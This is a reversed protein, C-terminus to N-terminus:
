FTQWLRVSTYNFCGTRATNDGWRKVNTSSHHSTLDQLDPKRRNSMLEGRQWRKTGEVREMKEGGKTAGQVAEFDESTKILSYIIAEIKVGRTCAGRSSRQWAPLTQSLIQSLPPSPLINPPSMTFQWDACSHIQMNALQRGSGDGRTGSGRM